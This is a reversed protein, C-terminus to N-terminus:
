RERSVECSVEVGSVGSQWEEAERQRECQGITLLLGAIVAWVLAADIWEALSNREM